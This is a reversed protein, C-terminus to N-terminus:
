HMVNGNKTPPFLEVNINSESMTLLDFHSFNVENGIDPFNENPPFLLELLIRNKM